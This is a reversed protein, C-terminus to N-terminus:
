MLTTLVRRGRGPLAYLHRNPLRKLYFPDDGAAVAMRGALRNAFATVVGLRELAARTVQGTVGWPLCVHRVPAGLRRELQDRADAIEREIDDQREAESEWRGTIGDALRGLEARWGPRDFFAAGGESAVFAELRACAEADPLFRRADSMRSRRPFLPYGLRAPTLFEPAAPGANLRPRVLFTEAFAPTVTGVVTRGSFVMAHSRTHSQVDVLGSSSLARLEAWTAFPNAALDAAQADVPGDAITPRPRDAEAVRSPIAYAVARLGYKRLLPGVVLWLSAWADDFALM